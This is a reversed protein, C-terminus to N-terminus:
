AQKLNLKHGTRKFKSQIASGNADRVNRGVGGQEIIEAVGAEGARFFTTRFAIAARAGHDDDFAARIALRSITCHITADHRDAEDGPAFDHRHLSDTTGCILMGHLLLHDFM